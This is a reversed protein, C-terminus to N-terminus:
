SYQGRAWEITFPGGLCGCQHDEAKAIIERAEQLEILEDRLENIQAASILPHGGPTRPFPMAQGAVYPGNDVIMDALQSM